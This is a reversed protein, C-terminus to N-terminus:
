WPGGFTGIGLGLTWDDQKKLIRKVTVRGDVVLGELHDREKINESWFRM